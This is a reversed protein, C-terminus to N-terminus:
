AYVHELATHVDPLPSEEAYRVAAEMAESVEQDIQNVEETSLGGQKILLL